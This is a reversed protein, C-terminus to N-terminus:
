NQPLFGAAVGPQPDPPASMQQWAVDPGIGNGLWISGDHCLAIIHGTKEVLTIQVVKRAM